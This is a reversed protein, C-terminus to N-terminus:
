CILSENFLAESLQKEAWVLETLRHICKFHIFVYIKKFLMISNFIFIDLFIIAKLEVCVPETRGEGSPGLGKGSKYGLFLKIFYYLYILMLLIFILLLLKGMKQLMAFGKNASSIATNLGEERKEAELVKVPKHLKRMKENATRHDEEL